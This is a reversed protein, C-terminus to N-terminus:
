TASIRGTWRCHYRGTAISSWGTSTTRTSCATGARSGGRVLLRVLGAVDRARVATPAVVDLGAEFSAEPMPDLALAGAYSYPSCNGVLALAARGLGELELAPDFRARTEALYRM